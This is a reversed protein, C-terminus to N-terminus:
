SYSLLCVVVRYRVPDSARAGAISEPRLAFMRNKDMRITSHVSRVVVSFLLAVASVM